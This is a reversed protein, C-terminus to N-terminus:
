DMSLQMCLNGFEESPELDEYIRLAKLYNSITPQLSDLLFYGNGVNFYGDALGKQYELKESLEIAQHQWILAVTM